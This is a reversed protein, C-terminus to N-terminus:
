SSHRHTQPNIFAQTSLDECTLEIIYFGHPLSDPLMMYKSGWTDTEFSQTFEMVKELSSVDTKVKSYSYLAWSPVKERERVAKILADENAFRYVAAKVPIDKQERIGPHYLYFPIVPTERTSYDFWIDTIGLNGPSPDATKSSDHSTEFSFTYDEKLTQSGNAAKLGKKVTVSYITGPELKRSLSRVYGHEEFRGEM